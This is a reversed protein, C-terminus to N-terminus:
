HKEISKANRISNVFDAIKLHCCMERLARRIHMKSKGYNTSPCVQSKHESYHKRKGGEKKTLNAVVEYALQLKFTRPVHATFAAWLLPCCVASLTCRILAFAQQGNARCYRQLNCTPTVPESDNILSSSYLFTSLSLSLPPASLSVEICGSSHQKPSLFFSGDVLPYRDFVLLKEECLICAVRSM